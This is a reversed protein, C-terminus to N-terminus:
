FNLNYAILDIEKLTFFPPKGVQLVCCTDLYHDKPCLQILPPIYNIAKEIKKILLWFQKTKQDLTIGDFSGTEKKGSFLM